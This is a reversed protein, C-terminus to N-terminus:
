SRDKDVKASVSEIGLAIISLGKLLSDHDMTLPPLLRIVNGFTGATVMSVKQEICYATIEQTLQKSPAGNEDVIEMALMAGVGRVDGIITSNSKMQEFAERVVQGQAKARELLDGHEFMHITALAAACSVPNGGYTSGLGGVDPADMVEVRGTVASIPMGSAISKASVIIDYDINFVEAAYFAGTRGFGSQVEDCITLIGYSQTLARLEEFFAKNATVFGGEGQTPEFIVAAIENPDFRNMFAEKLGDLVMRNALDQDGGAMRYANPFPIRHVDSVPSGFGTKYPAVKSTLAMGMFTRGHFANDFCLIGNRGTAYKAIKVANEVAEAGSNLLMTRKEFSGPTIENLKEALAVYPEYTAIQFCSHILQAAQAQIAEVVPAPCHGANLTGIGGAFDIWSVGQDDVITGERGTVAVCPTALGVGKPVAKKRRELVSSNAM